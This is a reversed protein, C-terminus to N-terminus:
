PASTTRAFTYTFGDCCGDALTLHDQDPFVVSMEGTAFLPPSFRIVDRGAFSGTKSGVGLEYQASQTLAGKKFLQAKGDSSLQLQMTYGETAPTITRGALGGSASLWEWRGTLDSARVNTGTPSACASLALAAVAWITSMRM